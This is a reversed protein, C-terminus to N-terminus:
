PNRESSPARLARRAGDCRDREGCVQKLRGPRAELQLPILAAPLTRIALLYASAFSFRSLDRIECPDDAIKAHRQTPPHQAQAQSWPPAVITLWRGPSHLKAQNWLM